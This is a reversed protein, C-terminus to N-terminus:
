SPNNMQWSRTLRVCRGVVAPIVADVKQLITQKIIDRSATMWQGKANALDQPDSWTELLAQNTALWNPTTASTSTSEELNDCFSIDVLPQVVSWLHPYVTHIKNRRIIGLTAYQDLADHHQWRLNFAVLAPPTKTM